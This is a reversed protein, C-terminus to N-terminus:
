TPMTNARGKRPSRAPGDSLAEWKSCCTRFSLSMMGFSASHDRGVVNRPVTGKALPRGQKVPAARSGEDQWSRLM